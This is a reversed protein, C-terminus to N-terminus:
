LGEAHITFSFQSPKKSAKTKLRVTAEYAGKAGPEFRIVMGASGYGNIESRPLQVVKFANETVGKTQVIEPQGALLLKRPVQDYILFHRDRSEGIKVAGFDTHDIELTSKSGNVIDLGNGRVLISGLGAKRVKAVKEFYESDPAGQCSTSRLDANRKAPLHRSPGGPKVNPSWVQLRKIFFRARMNTSLIELKRGGPKLDDMQFHYDGNSTLLRGNLIFKGPRKPDADLYAKLLTPCDPFKRKKALKITRPDEGQGVPNIAVAIDRNNLSPDEPYGVMVGFIRIGTGPNSIDRDYVAELYLPPTFDDRSQLHATQKVKREYLRLQGNSVNIPTQSIQNAWVKEDLKNNRWGNNLIMPWKNGAEVWVESVSRGSPGQVTLGVRYFGPKQFVHVPNAQSSRAGDGFDWKFELSGDYKDRSGKSSFRVTLPARGETKDTTIRSIISRVAIKAQASNYSNGASGDSAIFTVTEEGEPHDKPCSWSFRSGDLKGVEGSRRSITVPYGEPDIARLDMTVTEGPLITTNEIGSLAPRENPKGQTRYVNIAAPNGESHGNDALLLITTRGQPLGPDYPVVIEYEGTHDLRRISTKKNGYIVKWRLRLPLGQLDYSGEVSVRLRVAQNEQHILVTKKLAYIQRGGNVRLVDLIAEPPAVTMKKALKVMNRMHLHDDYNHFAQNVETQNGGRYDKHDGQSNYAVRHRLEHDFPVNYPLAAKWIYSMVSPYLGNLKLRTKLDRPLYGGAIVMKTLAMTESGSSGMSNYFVPAYAEYRDTSGKMKHDVYSIHAPGAMLIDSFYYNKELKAMIDANNTIDHGMGTTSQSTFNAGAQQLPGGKYHIMGARIRVNNGFDDAWRDKIYSHGKDRNSYVDDWFGAYIRGPWDHKRYFLFRDPDENAGGDDPYLRDGPDPLRIRGGGQLILPEPDLAWIKWHPRIFYPNHIIEGGASQPGTLLITVMLAAVFLSEKLKMSM